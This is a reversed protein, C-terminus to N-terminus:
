RLQALIEEIQESLPEGQESGLFLRVQLLAVGLQVAAAKTHGAEVSHRAGRLVALLATGPGHHLVGQDVLAQVDAIVFGIQDTLPRFAWFVATTRAPVSFTGTSGDFAATRVV